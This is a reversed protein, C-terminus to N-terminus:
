APVTGMIKYAFIQANRPNGARDCEDDLRKQEIIVTFTQGDLFARATMAFIDATDHVLIGKKEILEAIDKVVEAKEAATM